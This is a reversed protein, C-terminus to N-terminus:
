EDAITIAWWPGAAHHLAASWYWASVDSWAHGADDVIRERVRVTQTGREARFAGWLGGAADRALPLPTVRYGMGRFCDAAPHLLRTDRTVWRIILEHRGDRFRGIRGPFGAQFQRERTTLPLPTLARGEFTAPWGPFAGASRSTHENHLFPVCAVGVALTALLVLHRPHLGGAPRPQTTAPPRALRLTWWAIGVATIAFVLIGVAEHGWSPLAIVGAEAYFLAAARLTNGLLVAGLAGLLALVTRWPSLRLWLALACCLVAGTWLMKVGSCPADIAIIQQGWGLCAGQPVVAFGNLRLLPAAAQAVVVRLPYGTFFQLSPIVPLALTCLGWLAPHLPTGLYLSGAAAALATCALVGRALPLLSGYCAAYLLLLVLPLWPSWRRPAERWLLAVAIIPPVLGLAESPDAVMRRATWVWVPWCAGTILTLVLGPLWRTRPSDSM